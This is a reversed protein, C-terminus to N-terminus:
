NLMLVWRLYFQRGTETTNYLHQHKGAYERYYQNSLNQVGFNIELERSVKYFAAANIRAYALYGSEIQDQATREFKIQDVYGSRYNAALRVGWSKQQYDLTFSLIHKSLGELPAAYETIEAFKHTRQADAFSYSIQSSLQASWLQRWSIDVGTLWAHEANVSQYLAKDAYVGIQRYNILNDLRKNYIAASLYANDVTVNSQLAVQNSKYPTLQSNGILYGDIGGIFSATPAYYKTQVPTYNQSAILRLQWNEQMQYLANASLLVLNHQAPTNAKNDVDTIQTTLQEYRAAINVTLDDQQHQYALWSAVQERKLKYSQTRNLDKDTWNHEALLDAKIETNNVGAWALQKHQNAIRYYAETLQNDILGLAFESKFLDDQQYIHRDDVFNKLQTAFTWKHEQQQYDLALKVQQQTLKYWSSQLDIEDLQWLQPQTLDAFYTNRPYDTNYRYDSVLDAYTKLYVKEDHPINLTNQATGALWHFTLQRKPQWEGAWTLQNFRSDKKLQRSESALQAHAVRAYEVFNFEDLQLDLLTSAQQNTEDVRALATSGIGRTALHEESKQNSLQSIVLDFKHQLQPSLYHLAATLGAQEIQNHWVSYRNGRPFYVQQQQLLQQPAIPLQSIDTDAININRWRYTNFGQEQTHKQKYSASFAYFWNSFKAQWDFALSTGTKDALQHYNNEVFANFQWGDVLVEDSISSLLNINAAIGGSDQTVAYDRSINIQEFLATPLLNFDFALARENQERSDLSSGHVALTQMGNLSIHVFDGGLGRLAIQRGEGGDFSAAIGPVTLLSEALNNVPYSAANMVNLSEVRVGQNSAANDYSQYGRNIRTQLAPASVIVEEAIPKNNTPKVAPKEIIPSDSSFPTEAINAVLISGEILEVKVQYTQALQAVVSTLSLALNDDAVFSFEGAVNTVDPSFFIPIQSHQSVLRLSTFLNDATVKSTAWSFNIGACFM